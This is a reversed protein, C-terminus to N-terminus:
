QIAPKTMDGAVPNKIQVRRAWVFFGDFDRDIAVLTASRQFYDFYIRVAQDDRGDPKVLTGFGDFGPRSHGLPASNFRVPQPVKRLSDLM